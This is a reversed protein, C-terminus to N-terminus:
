KRNLHQTNDKSQDFQLWILIICYLIICIYSAILHTQSQPGDPNISQQNIKQSICIQNDYDGLYM